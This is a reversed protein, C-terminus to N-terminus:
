ADDYYLNARATVVVDQNFYDPDTNSVHQYGLLCFPAYNSPFYVSRPSGNDQEYILTKPCKLKFVMRKNLAHTFSPQNGATTSDQLTGTNKGLFFKRHALVAYQSTNIPLMSDQAYGNYAQYQSQGGANLLASTPTNASTLLSIDKVMKNTLIWLHVIINNARSVDAMGVEIYFQCSQVSIKRGVRLFTEGNGNDQPIRPLCPILDSFAIQSNYGIRDKVLDSNFKTETVRAIVKKILAVESKMTKPATKTKSKGKARPRYVRKGKRQVLM